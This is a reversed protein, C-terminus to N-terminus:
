AKGPNRSFRQDAQHFQGLLHRQTVIEMTRKVCMVKLSFPGIQFNSCHLGLKKGSLFPRPRRKQMSPNFHM